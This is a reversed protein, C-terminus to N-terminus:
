GVVTAVPELRGRLMNIWEVGGCGARQDRVAELYDPYKADPGSGAPPHQDGVPVVVVGNPHQLHTEVIARRRTEM